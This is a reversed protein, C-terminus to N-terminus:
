TTTFGLHGTAQCHMQTKRCCNYSHSCNELEIKVSCTRLAPSLPLRPVVVGDLLDGLCGCGGLFLDLVIPWIVTKEVSSKLVFDQALDMNKFSEKCIALMLKYWNNEWLPGGREGDREEEVVVRREKALQSPSLCFHNSLNTKNSIKIAKLRPFREKEYYLM